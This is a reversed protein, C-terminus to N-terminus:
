QDFFNLAKESVKKAVEKISLKTTDIISTKMPWEKVDIKTFDLGEWCDDKIVHQEWQPDKNHV